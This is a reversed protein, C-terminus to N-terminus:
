TARRGTGGARHHVGGACRPWQSRQSLWLPGCVPEFRGVKDDTLSAVGVVDGCRCVGARVAVSAVV